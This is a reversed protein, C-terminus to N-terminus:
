SFARPRSPSVDGAVLAPLECHHWFFFMCHGIAAFTTALAVYPFGFPFLFIYIHLAALYLVIIHPLTYIATNSRLSVAGFLECGWVLSLILIALLQDFFFEYLFALMGITIPAFVVSDLLHATVLQLYSERNSVRQNILYAFRLMRAQTERLTYAALTSTAFILFFTKVAVAVKSALAPRSFRPRRPYECRSLDYQDDHVRLRGVNGFVRLAANAVIADTGAATRWFLPGLDERPMEVLATPVGLEVRARSSLEVIGRERSYWYVSDAVDVRVAFATKNAFGLRATELADSLPSTPEVYRDHLGVLVYLGGVAVLACVMEFARRARADVVRSVTIACRRHVKFFVSELWADQSPSQQSGWFARRMKHPM